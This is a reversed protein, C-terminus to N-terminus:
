HTQEALRIAERLQEDPKIKVFDPVIGLQDIEQGDASYFKLITVHLISGDSLTKIRQVYGKGYTKTGILTARHNTKLASAIIEAASATQDDILLFIPKSYLMDKDAVIAKRGEHNEVIVIQGQDLLGNSIKIANQYLGGHNGRLDIILASSGKIPPYQFAKLFQSASDKSLLDGLKLYAIKHSLSQVTVALTQLEAPRLIVDYYLYGRKMDLKLPQGTQFHGLYEADSMFRVPLENISQLEDGAQIKAEHAPSGPQVKLVHKKDTADFILGYSLTSSSINQIEAEAEDNELLRTYPDGLKQTLCIISQRSGASRLCDDTEPKPIRQQLKEPDYYNEKIIQYAEDFLPDYKIPQAQCSHLLSYLAFLVSFVIVMQVPFFREKHNM